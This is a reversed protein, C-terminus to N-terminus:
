ALAIFTYNEANSNLNTNVYFNTSNVATVAQHAGGFTINHTSYVMGQNAEGGDDTMVIVVKPVATLGHPIARDAAGDGTFTGDNISAAYPSPNALPM